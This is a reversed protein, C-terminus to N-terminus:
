GGRGGGIDVGARRGSVDVGRRGAGTDAEGAAGSRGAVGDGRAASAAARERGPLRTARHPAAAGDGASRSDMVDGVGLGGGAAAADRLASAAAAAFRAVSGSLRLLLRPAAVPAAWRGPGSQWGGCRAARRPIRRGPAARLAAGFHQRFGRRGASIPQRVAARLTCLITNDSGALGGGAHRLGAVHHAHHRKRVEIRSRKGGLRCANGFDKATCFGALNTGGWRNAVMGAVYKFM